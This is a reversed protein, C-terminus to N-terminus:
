DMSYSADQWYLFYVNSIVLTRIMSHPRLDHFISGIAYVSTIVYMGSSPLEM